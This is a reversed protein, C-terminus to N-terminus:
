IFTLHKSEVTSQSWTNLTLERRQSYVDLNSHVNFLKKKGPYYLFHRTQM